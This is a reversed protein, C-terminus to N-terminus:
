LCSLWETHLACQTPYVNLNVNCIDMQLTGTTIQSDTRVHTSIFFTTLSDTLWIQYKWLHTCRKSDGSVLVKDCISQLQFSLRAMVVSIAIIDFGSYKGKWSDCSVPNMNRVTVMCSTTFSLIPIARNSVTSSLKCMNPCVNRRASDLKGIFLIASLCRIFSSKGTIIFTGKQNVIINVSHM